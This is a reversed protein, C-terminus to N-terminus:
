DEIFNKLVKPAKHSNKQKEVYHYVQTNASKGFMQNDKDVVTGGIHYFDKYDSEYPRNSFKNLYIKPNKMKLNKSTQSINYNMEKFKKNAIDQGLTKYIEDKIKKNKESIDYYDPYEVDQEM